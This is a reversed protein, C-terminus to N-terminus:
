HAQAHAGGKSPKNRFEVRRRAMELERADLMAEMRHEAVRVVIELDKYGMFAGYYNLKLGTETLMKKVFDPEINILTMEKMEGCLYECARGIDTMTLGQEGGKPKLSVADEIARVVIARMLDAAPSQSGHQALQKKIFAISPNGISVVKDQTM